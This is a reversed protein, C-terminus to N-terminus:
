GAARVPAAPGMWGIMELACGLAGAHPGAPDAAILTVIRRRLRDTAADHRATGRFASGRLSDLRRQIDLLDHLPSDM